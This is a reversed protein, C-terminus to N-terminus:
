DHSKTHSDAHRCAAKEPFPPLPTRLHKGAERGVQHFFLQGPEWPSPLLLHEQSCNTPKGQEENEAEYYIHLSRAKAM